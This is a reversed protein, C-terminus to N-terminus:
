GRAALWAKSRMCMRQMEFATGSLKDKISAAGPISFFLAMEQLWPTSIVFDMPAAEVRIRYDCLGDLPSKKISFQAVATGLKSAGACGFM